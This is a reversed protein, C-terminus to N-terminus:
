RLLGAIKVSVIDNGEDVIHERDMFMDDPLKERLDPDIDINYYKGGRKTVFDELYSDIIGYEDGYGAAVDSRHPTVIVVFRISNAELYAAMADLEKLSRPDINLGALNLEKAARIDNETLGRNLKYVKNRDIRKSMDFTYSKDLRDYRYAVNKYIEPLLYTTNEVWDFWINMSDVSTLFVPDTYRKIKEAFVASERKIVPATEYQAKLFAEAAGYDEPSELGEFGTLLVVTDIPHQACAFKVAELSTKYFQNPTSMNVCRCNNEGDITRPVVVWGVSSGVFLTDVDEKESYQEWRDISAWNSPALIFNMVRTIAALIALFLIIRFSTLLTKKMKTKM